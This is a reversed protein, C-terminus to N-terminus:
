RTINNINIYNYSYPSMHNLMNFCQHTIDVGRQRLLEIAHVLFRKDDLRSLADAVVNDKSKIHTVVITINFLAAIWLIERVVQNAIPNKSLGRRVVWEAGTNETQVLVCKDKWKSCWRHFALLIACLEKIFIPLPSLLPYDCEWASYLFDAEWCAAGAELSADTSVVTDPLPSKNGPVFAVGNFQNCWDYFLAIDKKAFVPIRIRHSSHKLSSQLDILSRMIPRMAKVCKASWSLKGILSQIQRKSMKTQTLWYRCCERTDNLKDKPIYLMNNVSDIVIGLFTLCQTPYVSKDHNLTFGLKILLSNLINM